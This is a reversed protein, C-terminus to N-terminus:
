MIVDISIIPTAITTFVIFFLLLIVTSSRRGTWVVFNRQFYILGPLAGLVVMLSIIGGYELNITKYLIYAITSSINNSMAVFMGTSGAVLPFVGLTILTPTLIFTSGIGFASNLFGSSLGIFALKAIAMKTMEIEGKVPVYGQAIKAKYDRQVWFAAIITYCTGIVILLVLLFIDVPTCRVIGAASKTKGSGRLYSIIFLIIVM